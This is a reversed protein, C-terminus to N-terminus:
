NNLSNLYEEIDDLDDLDSLAKSAASPQNQAPTSSAGISDVPEDLGLEKELDDLALLEKNASHITQPPPSISVPPGDNTSTPLPVSPFGGPSSPLPLDEEVNGLLKILDLDSMGSQNTAKAPVPSQLNDLRTDVTDSVLPDDIISFQDQANSLFKRSRRKRSKQKRNTIADWFKADRHLSQEYKDTLEFDITLRGLSSDLFRPMPYLPAPPTM